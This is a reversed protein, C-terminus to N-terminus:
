EVGHKDLFKEGKRTLSCLKEKGARYAKVYRKQELKKINYSATQIPKDVLSAVEGVSIERNSHLTELIEMETFCLKSQLRFPFATGSKFYFKKLGQKVSKIFGKSELVDLHYSTTGNGAEVDKIIRSFNAGPNDVIYQYIRGRMSHQEIDKEIDTKTLRSYLPFFLLLLRYRCVEERFAFFYVLFGTISMAAIGGLSPFIDRLFSDGDDHDNDILLEITAEKSYDKGDFARISINHWGNELTTTDFRFSWNAEGEVLQWNENDIKLEVREIDSDVDAATGSVVLNRQVTSRNLPTIVTLEPLDNVNIVNLTFNRYDMFEHDSATVNVYYSGTDRQLPVGSLLGTAENITLFGADTELSWIVPYWDEDEVEYVVAYEEDEHIDTVDETTIVPPLNKGTWPDFLVHTTINDGKGGPNESPIFPGSKDGWWNNIANITYEENRKANIGYVTNGHITNDQATTNQSGYRLYIGNENGKITNGILANSNASELRVGSDQNGSFVNGSLMNSDSDELVLGKLSNNSSTTNMLTTSNSDKLFIGSWGSNLVTTTTLTNFDCDVLRIGNWKNGQATNDSLTNSGSRELLIGYGKNTSCINNVITNLKCHYSFEPSTLYIGYWNDSCNNHAITNGSSDFSSSSFLAIGSWENDSCHNHEIINASCNELFIGRKSNESCNNWAITTHDTSSLSIGHRNRECSNNSIIGHKSSFLRIGDNDNDVITNDFIWVHDSTVKIGADYAGNGSRTILFGSVNCWDATIRVVDGAGGGRITTEKSGNGVLSMTKDVMVNESYTGEWVRVTDGAEANDVADQIRIFDGGGGDDVTIIKGEAETIISLLLFAATIVLLLPVVCRLSVILARTSHRSSITKQHQPM